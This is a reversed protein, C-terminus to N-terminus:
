VDIKVEASFQSERGENDVTTVVLYYTGTQLGTLIFNEASGDNLTMTSSYQGKVTGYYIKYGAIESLSLASNDEREAPAVWTLNVDSANLNNTGTEIGPNNDENSYISTVDETSCSSIQLAIFITILLSTLRIKLLRALIM